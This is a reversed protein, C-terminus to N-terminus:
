LYQFNLIFLRQQSINVNSYTGVCLSNWKEYGINVSRLAKNPKVLTHDFNNYHRRKFVLHIYKLGSMYKDIDYQCSWCLLIVYQSMTDSKAVFFIELFLTVSISPIIQIQM